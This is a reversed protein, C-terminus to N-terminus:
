QEEIPFNHQKLIQTLTKSINRLKEPKILPKGARYSEPDTEILEYISEIASRPTYSLLADLLEKAPKATISAVIWVMTGPASFPDVVIIETGSKDYSSRFTNRLVRMMQKTRPSKVVFLPPLEESLTYFHLEDGRHKVVAELVKARM